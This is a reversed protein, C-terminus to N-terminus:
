ERSRFRVIVMPDGENNDGGGGGGGGGMAGLQSVVLPSPRRRGEAEAVLADADAGRLLFGAAVAADASETM